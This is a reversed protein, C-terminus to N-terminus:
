AGVAAEADAKLAALTAAMGRRNHSAADRGRGLTVSLPVLAVKSVVHRRDDWTETVVCGGETERLSYGWEAISAGAFSALFAFRVHPEVETVTCLTTWPLWIRNSGAFKDGVRYPGEGSIRRIATAEPSWRPYNDPTSVMAWVADIPAEIRIQSTVTETTM